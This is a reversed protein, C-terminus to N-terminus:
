KSNLEEHPLLAPREGIFMVEEEFVVGTARRARAVEDGRGADAGRQATAQGANVIINAHKPFVMADGVRLGRCHLQDLVKGAPVRHSARLRPRCTRSTPAPPRSAAGTRTSSAGSRSGRTSRRRSRELSGAEVRLRASSSSTRTASSARTATTSSSSAGGAGHPLERGELDCVVGDIVFEGISKGYCGANGYIAGGIDGPVGAAFELATLSRDRCALIFELFNEGAEVHARDGRFEVRDCAVHVVVGRWGADSVLLNSGGGLM